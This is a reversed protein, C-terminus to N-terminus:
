PDRLQPRKKRPKPKWYKPPDVLQFQVPDDVSRPAGSRGVTEAVKAGGSDIRSRSNGGSPPPPVFPRPATEPGPAPYDASGVDDYPDAYADDDFYEDDEQAYAFGTAGVVFLFVLAIAFHIRHGSM